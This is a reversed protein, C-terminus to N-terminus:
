DEAYEAVPVFRVGTPEIALVAEALERSALLISRQGELRVLAPGPPLRAEDLALARVRLIRDQDMLDLLSRQRDIADVLGLPHALFYPEPRRKGDKGVLPVPVFEVDEVQADRLVDVVRESLVLLSDPNSLSDALAAKKPAGAGASKLRFRAKTPFVRLVPGGNLLLHDDEFGQLPGLSFGGAPPESRWVLWGPMAAAKPKKVALRSAPSKLKSARAPPKSAM